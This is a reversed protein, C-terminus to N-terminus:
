DSLSFNLLSDVYRRSVGSELAIQNLRQDTNRTFTTYFELRSTNYYPYVVEMLEDNTLTGRDILGYASDLVDFVCHEGRKYRYVLFAGEEIMRPRPRLSDGQFLFIGTRSTVEITDGNVFHNEPILSSSRAALYEELCAKSAKQIIERAKDQEQNQCGFTFPMLLFLILSKTM